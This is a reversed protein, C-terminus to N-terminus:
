AGISTKNVGPRIPKVVYSNETAVWVKIKEINEEIKTLRVEIKDLRKVVPKIQKSLIKEFANLDSANLPM